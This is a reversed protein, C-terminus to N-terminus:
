FMARAGGRTAAWATRLKFVMSGTVEAWSGPRGEVVKTAAQFEHLEIDPDFYTSVRWRRGIGVFAM